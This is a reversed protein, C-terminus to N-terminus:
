MRFFACKEAVLKIMSSFYLINLIYAVWWITWCLLRQNQQCSRWLKRFSRWPLWCQLRHHTAQSPQPAAPKWLLMWYRQAHSCVPVGRGQVEWHLELCHQQYWKVFIKHITWHVGWQLVWPLCDEHISLRWSRCFFYFFIFKVRLRTWTSTKM